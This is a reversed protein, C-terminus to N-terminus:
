IYIYVYESLSEVSKNGVPVLATVPRNYTAFIIIKEGKTVDEQLFSM